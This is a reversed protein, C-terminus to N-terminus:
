GSGPRDAQHVSRAAGYTSRGPVPRLVRPKKRLPIVDAGCKRTRKRGRPAALSAKRRRRAERVRWPERPGFARGMLRVTTVVLGVGLIVSLLLFPDWSM